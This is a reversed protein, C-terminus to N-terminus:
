QVCKEPHGKNTGGTLPTSPDHLLFICSTDHSVTVCDILVQASAAKANIGRDSLWTKQAKAIVSSIANPENLRDEMRHLLHSATSPKVNAVDVDEIMPQVNKNIQDARAFITTRWVDGSHAHVSGNKSLSFLDDKKNFRINIKFPCMDENRTPLSTETKQPQNIGKPGCQEARSNEKVTTVKMGAAFHADPYEYIRKCVKHEVMRHCTCPLKWSTAQATHQTNRITFQFGQKETVKKLDARLDDWSQRETYSAPFRLLCPKPYDLQRAIGAVEGCTTYTGDRVYDLL